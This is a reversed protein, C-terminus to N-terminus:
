QQEDVIAKAPALLNALSQLLSPSERALEDAVMAFRSIVADLRPIAPALAKLYGAADDVLKGLAAGQNQIASALSTLAADLEAPHVSTILNYADALATQLGAAAPSVDPAVDQGSRLSATSLQAPPLLLIETAGFLSAPVAVATVNAPISRAFHSQVRLRLEAGGRGNAQFSTVEGVIVDRYTVIDGTDLSDGVQSIGATVIVNNGFDGNFSKFVLAVVLAMALFVGLGITAHIRTRAASAQTAM